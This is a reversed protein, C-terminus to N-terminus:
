SMVLLGGEVMSHSYLVDTLETNYKLIRLLGMNPFMMVM